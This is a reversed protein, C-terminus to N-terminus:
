VLVSTAIEEHMKGKAIGGEVKYNVNKPEDAFSLGDTRTIQYTGDGYMSVYMIKNDTAFDIGTPYSHGSEYFMCSAGVDDWHWIANGPVDDNNTCLYVVGNLIRLNDPKSWFPVASKTYTGAALDLQMLFRDRITSFIFMGNKVHTGETRAYLDLNAEAKDAVWKFIGGTGSEVPTIKLYDVTGSELACWKDAFNEANLCALTTKNPSFRMIAGQYSHSSHDQHPHHSTTNSIPPVSVCHSLTSALEINDPYKIPFFQFIYM